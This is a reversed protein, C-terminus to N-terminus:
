SRNERVTLRLPATRGRRKRTRGQRETRKPILFDLKELVQPCYCVQCM